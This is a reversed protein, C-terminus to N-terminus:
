FWDFSSTDQQSDESSSSYFFRTTYTTATAGVVGAAAAAAIPPVVKKAERKLVPFYTQIKPRSGELPTIELELNNYTDFVEELIKRSVSEDEFFSKPFEFEAIGPNETYAQLWPFERFSIPDDTGIMLSLRGEGAPSVAVWPRLDEPDTVNVLELKDISRAIEAFQKSVLAIFESPEAEGTRQATIGTRLNEVGAQLWSPPIYEKFTALARTAKCRQSHTAKRALSDVAELIYVAESNGQDSSLVELANSEAQPLQGLVLHALALNGKAILREEPTSERLSDTLMSELGSFSLKGQSLSELWFSYALSNPSGNYDHQEMFEGLCGTSAVGPKSGLGWSSPTAFIHDMFESSTDCGQTFLEFAIAPASSLIAKAPGSSLSKLEFTWGVELVQPMYASDWENRAMAGIIWESHVRFKPTPAAGDDRGAFFHPRGKAIGKKGAKLALGESIGMLSSLIIPARVQGLLANVDSMAQNESTPEVTNSDRLDVYGKAFPWTFFGLDVSIYGFERGHNDRFFRTRQIGAQAGKTGETALLNTALGGQDLPWFQTESFASLYAKRLEFGEDSVQYKQDIKAEFDLPVLAEGLGLVPLLRSDLRELESSSIIGSNKLPVMRLDTYWTAPWDFIVSANKVFIEEFLSPESKKKKSFFGM